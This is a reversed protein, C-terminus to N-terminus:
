TLGKYGAVPVLLCSLILRFALFSPLYFFESFYLRVRLKQQQKKKQINLPWQGAALSFPVYARPTELDRM